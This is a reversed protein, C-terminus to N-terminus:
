SEVNRGAANRRMADRTFAAIGVWILGFGALRTESFLEGYVLVGILFQMTPALYQLLGLTVMTTHRASYAFLLLPLSTVVGACLLLADVAHGKQFLSGAGTGQLHLLYGAAFPFLLLTELALGDISGAPSTKRWLTYLAFTVALLISLGPLEGYIWTLWIVGATAFTVSFWQAPRLREGLLFIGLTMTLIPNLFYGLSTDVIRGQQVAWIYTFWNAAILIATVTHRALIRGTTAAEILRKWRDRVGCLVFLFALSWVMRHCLVEVSPVAQLFKWYIPLIGWLAYASVGGIVGNISDANPLSQPLDSM